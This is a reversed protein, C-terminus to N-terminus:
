NEINLRAVTKNYNKYGLWYFLLAFAGGTIFLATLSYRIAMEDHLVYDTFVAVMSPGLGLGIMNIIFLFIASALARVQNPMLEQVASTSAGMPSALFFSPIVLLGLVIHPDGILPIFCSCFAAAGAIL